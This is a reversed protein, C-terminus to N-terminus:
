FLYGVTVAINANKLSGDDFNNLNGLGLNYQAKFFIKDFQYGAGINLGFDFAKLEGEKSGFKVELDDTEGDVKEEGSASLGYGLYPGAFVLVKSSESLNFKYAANIPLQLYNLAISQKLEIGEEKYEFKSGKQSFTLEPIISFSETIAYDLVVGVQFGAKYKADDLDGTFTSTNLGATVGYKIGQANVALSSLVVVLAVLLVKKMQKIKLLSEDIINITAVFTLL